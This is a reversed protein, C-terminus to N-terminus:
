VTQYSNLYGLNPPYHVSRNKASATSQLSKELLGIIEDYQIVQKNAVLIFDALAMIARWNSRQSVFDFASQFLGVIKNERYGDQDGYCALYQKVVALDALGGYHQLAQLNLLQANFAEDDRLAVYKAEALPGALINIMDAEFAREYALMESSALEKTAEKLTAPLTHILRGGEVKAATQSHAQGDQPLTVVIQFYVPPLAKQQNGLYIAAAHGAEHIAIKRSLEQHSPISPNKHNHVRNM